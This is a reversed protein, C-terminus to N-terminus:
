MIFNISLYSYPLTLVIQKNVKKKFFFQAESIQKIERFFCNLIHVFLIGKTHDLEKGFPM